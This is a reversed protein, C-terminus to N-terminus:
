SRWLGIHKCIHSREKGIVCCTELCLVWKLTEIKTFLTDTDWIYKAKEMRRELDRIKAEVIAKIRETTMVKAYM